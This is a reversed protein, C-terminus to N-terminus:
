SPSCMEGDVKESCAVLLLTLGKEWSHGALNYWEEYRHYIYLVGKSYRTEAILDCEVQEAFLKQYQDNCPINHLSHTPLSNSHPNNHFDRYHTKKM